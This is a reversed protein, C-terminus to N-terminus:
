RNKEFDTQWIFLLTRGRRVYRTQINVLGVYPKCRPANRAGSKSSIKAPM